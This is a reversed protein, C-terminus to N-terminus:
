AALSLAYLLQLSSLLNTPAATKGGELARGGHESVPVDLLFLLRRRQPVQVRRVFLVTRVLIPCTCPYSFRISLLPLFGPRNSVGPYPFPFSSVM